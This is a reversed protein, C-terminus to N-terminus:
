RSLLEDMRKLLDHSRAILDYAKAKTERCEAIARYALQRVEEGTLEPPDTLQHRADNLMFSFLSLDAAPKLDKGDTSGFLAL